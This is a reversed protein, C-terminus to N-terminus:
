CVPVLDRWTLGAVLPGGEGHVGIPLCDRDDIRGRCTTQSSLGFRLPEWLMSQHWLPKNSQRTGLLILFTTSALIFEKLSGPADAAHRLCSQRHSIDRRYPSGTRPDGPTMAVAPLSGPRQEMQLMFPLKIRRLSNTTAARMAANM